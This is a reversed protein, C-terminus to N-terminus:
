RVAAMRGTHTTGVARAGGGGSGRIVAQLAYETPLRKVIELVECRNARWVDVVAKEVNEDALFKVTV